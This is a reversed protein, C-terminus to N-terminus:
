VAKLEILDQFFGILRFKVIKIQFCVLYYHFIQLHIILFLSSIQKPHWEIKQRGGLWTPVFITPKFTGPEFGGFFDWWKKLAFLFYLVKLSKKLSEWLERLSLYSKIEKEMEKTCFLVKGNKGNVNILHFVGVLIFLILWVLFM